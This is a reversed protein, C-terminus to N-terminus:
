MLMTSLPPTVRGLGDLDGRPELVMNVGGDHAAGAAEGNNFVSSM